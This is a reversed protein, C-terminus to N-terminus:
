LEILRAGMEPIVHYAIRNEECETKWKEIRWFANSSDFIIEGADFVRCLDEINIGPNGTLILFDVEMKEGCPLAEFMPGVLVIRKNGFWIFHDSKMIWDKQVVAQNLIMNEPKRIGSKTRYNRIHYEIKREDGMLLTDTLLLDEKGKIFEIATSKPVHYVIMKQQSLREAKRFSFFLMLVFVVALGTLVDRRRRNLIVLMVSICVLIVLILEPTTLYIGKLTSFPLGEIWGVSVNLVRIVRTLLEAFLDSLFPLPSTALVLIGSYLILTAAPIAVLNTVAFLSPFQNFYYTTLSFTALTASFSVVTISWIKDPLWNGPIILSYVPKYITVIGLVALYSLQFGVATIMYPNVAVLLFASGALSNYINPKRNLSNGALIFSFMTSARLVSPSFGTVLAYFWISLLLIITRTIRLWKKRKMFGLMGGLVLYIIGVHLGSVCLIHMAGAGAFQRRQETDLHEDYGLLIASAVAYERGGLGSAELIRLFRDRLGIGLARVPNGRKQELVVWDDSRVFAQCYIGKNSLHRKYNFEAPNLPSQVAQLSTQVLLRDGYELGTALTDKEFYLMLKGSVNKWGATDFALEPRAIVRFSREKRVVPETIRIVLKEADTHHSIDDPRFRPTNLITLQYGSLLLILNILMGSIWRFRYPKNKRPIIVYVLYVVLMGAILLPIGEVRVNLFIAVVIGTVFPLFLRVFPVQHWIQM